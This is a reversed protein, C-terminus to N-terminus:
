DFKKGFYKFFKELTSDKHEIISNTPNIEKSVLNFHNISFLEHQWILILILSKDKLVLLDNVDSVVGFPHMKKQLYLLDEIMGDRENESLNIELNLETPKFNM